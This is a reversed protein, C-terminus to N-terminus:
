RGADLVAGAVVGLQIQALVRDGVIGVVLHVAADNRRRLHPVDVESVMPTWPAPVSVFDTLTNFYMDLEVLRHREGARRLQRQGDPRLFPLHDTVEQPAIPPQKALVAHLRLVTVLVPDAHCGIRENEVSSRDLEGTVPDRVGLQRMVPQSVVGRTLHVAADVAWRRYRAHRDFGARPAPVAIGTALGDADGNPEAFRYREDADRLQLQRDASGRPEHGASICPCLRRYIEPVLHLFAIEVRISDADALSGQAHGFTNRDTIRCAVVGHEIEAGVGEAVGGLM